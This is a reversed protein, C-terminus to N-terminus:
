RNEPPRDPRAPPSWSSFVALFLYSKGWGAGFDDGVGIDISVEEVEIQPVPISTPSETNAVLIKAAAMSPAAPKRQVNTQIKPQKIKQEPESVGLYSVLSPQGVPNVTMLIVALILGILAM